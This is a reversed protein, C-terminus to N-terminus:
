TSAWEEGLYEIQGVTLKVAEGRKDPPYKYKRFLRRIELGMTAQDSKKVTFDISASRRVVQVLEKIIPVSASKNNKKSM